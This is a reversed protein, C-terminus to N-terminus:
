VVALGLSIFADHTHVLGLVFNTKRRAAVSVEAAFTGSTQVGTFIGTRDASGLDVSNKIDVILQKEIEVKL